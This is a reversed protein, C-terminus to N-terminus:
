FRETLFAHLRVELLDETSRAYFVASGDFQQIPALQALEKTAAVDVHYQAYKVVNTKAIATGIFM